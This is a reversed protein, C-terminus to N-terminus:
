KSQIRSFHFCLLALLLLCGTWAFNVVAVSIGELKAAMVILWFFWVLGPSNSEKAFFSWAEAVPLVPTTKDVDM